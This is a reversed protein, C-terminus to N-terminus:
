PGELIGLSLWHWSQRTNGRSTSCIIRMFSVKTFLNILFGIGNLVNLCMSRLWYNKLINVYYKINLDREFVDKIKKQLNYIFSSKFAHKNCLLNPQEFTPWTTTLTKISNAKKRLKIKIKSTVLNKVFM